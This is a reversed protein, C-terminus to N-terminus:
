HLCILFVFVDNVQIIKVLTHINNKDQVNKLAKNVTVRFTYIM